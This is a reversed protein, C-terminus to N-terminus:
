DGHVHPAFTRTVQDDTKAIREHIHVAFLDGVQQVALVDDEVQTGADVPDRDRRLEIRNDFDTEHHGGVGTVGVTRRSGEVCIVANFEM